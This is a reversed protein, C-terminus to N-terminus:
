RNGLSRLSMATRVVVAPSTLSAGAGMSEVISRGQRPSTRPAFGRALAWPEIAMEPSRKSMRIVESHTSADLETSRCDDLDYSEFRADWAYRTSRTGGTYM